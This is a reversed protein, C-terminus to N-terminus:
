RPSVNQVAAGGVARRDRPVMRTRSAGPGSRSRGSSSTANTRSRPTSRVRRWDRNGAPPMETRRAYVRQVEEALFSDNPLRWTRGRARLAVIRLRQGGVSLSEGVTLRSGKSLSLRETTTRAGTVVSVPVVPGTDSVAWITAIEEPRASSVTHRSKTEIRQVLVPEESGPVPGGLEVRAGVPLSIRRHESRPGHSLVEAVEM